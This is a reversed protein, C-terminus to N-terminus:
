RQAGRREGENLTGRSIILSQNIGNYALQILALTKLWSASSLKWVRESPLLDIRKSWKIIVICSVFFLNLNWDRKGLNKGKAQMSAFNQLTEKKVIMLM